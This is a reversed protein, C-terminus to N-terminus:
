VLNGHGGFFCSFIVTHEAAITHGYFILCNETVIAPGDLILKNNGNAIAHGYFILKNNETAIAWKRDLKADLGHFIHLFYRANDQWEESTKLSLM